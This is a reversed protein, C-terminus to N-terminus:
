PGRVPVTGRLRRGDPYEAHTSGSGGRHAPCLERGGRDAAADHVCSGGRSVLLSNTRKKRAEGSETPKTHRDLLDSPAIVAHAEVESEGRANFVLEGAPNYLDAPPLLILGHGEAAIRLIGGFTADDMDKDAVVGATVTVVQLQALLSDRVEERDTSVAAYFARMGQMMDVFNQGDRELSKVTFVLSQKSFLKRRSVTIRPGDASAKWDAFQEGVLPLLNEVSALSLYLTCQDM